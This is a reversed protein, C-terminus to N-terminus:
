MILKKELTKLLQMFSFVTFLNNWDTREKLIKSLHIIGDIGYEERILELVWHNLKNKNVHLVKAKYISSLESLELLEQETTTPLDVKKYSKYITIGSDCIDLCVSNHVNTCIFAVQSFEAGTFNADKLNCNYFVVNHLKANKFSVGRMNCNFFDVGILESDRFNCDTMISAQYKVNKFKAGIFLLAHMNSKYNYRNSLGTLKKPCHTLTYYVPKGMKVRIENRKKMKELRRAKKKNRGRGM